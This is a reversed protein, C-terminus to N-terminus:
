KMEDDGSRMILESSDDNKFYFADNGFRISTLEPLNEFVARSCYHFANDGFLLSKLSPLNKLKLSAFSFNWSKENLEGMEIVELSPVNEIECVSYDSFSHHGMKLERLRECNKLYFRRYPDHGYWDKEKTFSNEGIVVRELQSLGILKVENVNEFCDDRVEFLRLSPMLSLELATWEPGNCSNNEVILEEVHSHLLQSEGNLVVRKNLQEDNMWEGDYMTKANRDYQTGRGWRKGECIEGENEVKQLDPYYSRGYCVNVDGIRFGEYVMRNESDYLVGWGYPQNSLVDGEWREGDDSLDLVKAHEIGKVDEGNVRILTHSAIDVEIVRNLCLEVVISPSKEVVGEQYWCLGNKPLVLYSDKRNKKLTLEHCEQYKLIKVLPTLVESEEECEKLFPHDLLEDVNYRDDVEM